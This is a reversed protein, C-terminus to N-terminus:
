TRVSGTAIARSWASSIVQRLAIEPYHNALAHREAFPMGSLMDYVFADIEAKTAKDELAVYAAELFATAHEQYLAGWYLSFAERIVASVNTDLGQAMERMKEHLDVSLHVSMIEKM